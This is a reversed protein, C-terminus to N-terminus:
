FLISSKGGPPQQQRRVPRSPKDHTTTNDKTNDKINDKDDKNDMLTTGMSDNGGVPKLVRVTSRETAWPADRAYM